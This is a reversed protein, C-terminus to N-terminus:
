DEILFGWLYYGKEKLGVIGMDGKEYTILVVGKLNTIRRVTTTLRWRFWSIILV